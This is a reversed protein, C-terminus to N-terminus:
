CVSFSSPAVSLANVLSASLILTAASVESQCGTKALDREGRMDRGRDAPEARDGAEQSEGNGTQRALISLQHAGGVERHLQGAPEDDDQDQQKDAPVEGPTAKSAM